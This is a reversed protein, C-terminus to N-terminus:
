REITFGFMNVSLSNDDNNDGFVRVKRSDSLPVDGTCRALNYGTLFLGNRQNAIYDAAEKNIISIAVTSSTDKGEMEVFAAVANVPSFADGEADDPTQWTGNPNMSSALGYTSPAPPILTYRTGTKDVQFVENSAGTSPSLIAGICRDDGNYWGSLAYRNTPETTSDIIVIGSPYTSADDDIYIYSFDLGAALSTMDHAIDNTIIFYSQNCYGDGNTIAVSDSDVYVPYSGKIYGAALDAPQAATDALDDSAQAAADLNFTTGNITLNTGATYTTDNDNTFATVTAASMENSTINALRALPVTGSALTSANLGTLNSGDNGALTTLNANTPQGGLSALTPNTQANEVENSWASNYIFGFRNSGGDATGTITIPADTYLSNTFTSDAASADAWAGNLRGYTTGDSPADDIVAMGGLGMSTRATAGSEGVWDSGDGVLFLGDTPAIAAIDQLDEDLTLTSGSISAGTGMDVTAIVSSTTGGAIWTGQTPDVYSESGTNAGYRVNFKIAPLPAGYALPYIDGWFIETDGISKSSNFINTTWQGAVLNFTYVDGAVTAANTSIIVTGSSNRVVLTASAKEIDTVTIPLTIPTSSVHNVKKAVTSDPNLTISNTRAGWATGAIVLSALIALTRKM